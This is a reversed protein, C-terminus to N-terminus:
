RAPQRLLTRMSEGQMDAMLADVEQIGASSPHALNSMQDANHGVRMPLAVTVYRLTILNDAWAAVERVDAHLLEPLGQRQDLGQPRREIDMSLQGMVHWSRLHRKQELGSDQKDPSIPM